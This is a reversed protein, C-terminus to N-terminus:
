SAAGPGSAIAPPGVGLTFAVSTMMITRLRVRAPNKRRTWCPKGEAYYVEAFEVILIANMTPLGIIAILAPKFDIDNPMDHPM